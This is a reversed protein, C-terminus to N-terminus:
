EKSVHQGGDHPAGVATNLTPAGTLIRSWLRLRNAVVVLGVLRSIVVSVSKFGPEEHLRTPSKLDINLPIACTLQSSESIHVWGLSYRNLWCTRSQSVTEPSYAICPNGVALAIVTRENNADSEFAFAHLGIEGPDDKKSQRVSACILCSRSRLTWGLLVFLLPNGAGCLLALM